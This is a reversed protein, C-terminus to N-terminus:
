LPVKAASYGLQNIFEDFSRDGSGGLLRGRGDAQTTRANEGAGLLSVLDVLNGVINAHRALVDFVVHSEAVLHLYAGVAL